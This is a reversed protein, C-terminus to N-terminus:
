GLCLGQFSVFRKRYEWRGDWRRSGRLWYFCHPSRWSRKERSKCQFGLSFYYIPISHKQAGNWSQNRLSFLRYSDTSGTSATAGFVLAPNCWLPNMKVRLGKFTWETLCFICTAFSRFFVLFMLFVFVFFAFLFNAFLFCSLFMYINILITHKCTLYTISSQCWSEETETSTFAKVLM